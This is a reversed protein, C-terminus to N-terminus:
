YVGRAADWDVRAMSVPFAFSENERKLEAASKVGAEVARMDAQRLNEKAAFRDRIELQESM